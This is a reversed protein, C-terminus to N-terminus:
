DTNKKEKRKVGVSLSGRAPCSLFSAARIAALVESAEMMVLARTSNQAVSPTLKTEEMPIILASQVMSARPATM